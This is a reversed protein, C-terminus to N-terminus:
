LCFKTIALRVRSKKQVYGDVLRSLNTPMRNQIKLTKLDTEVNITGQQMTGHLINHM